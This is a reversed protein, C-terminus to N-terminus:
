ARDPATDCRPTAPFGHTTAPSPAPSSPLAQVKRIALIGGGWDSPGSQGVVQMDPRQLVGLKRVGSWVSIANYPSDKSLHKCQLGRSATVPEHKPEEGPHYDHFALVGGEELMPWYHIFDLMVHNICHCGDIFIFTFSRDIRWWLDSSDGILVEAGPFPPKVPRDRQNDIGLYELPLDKTKCFDYVGRATGGGEVGIELFRIANFQAANATLIEIMCIQDAKTLLGFM